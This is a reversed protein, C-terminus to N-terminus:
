ALAQHVYKESKNVSFAKFCSRRLPWACMSRGNRTIMGWGLSGTRELATASEWPLSSLLHDQADQQEMIYPLGQLAVLAHRPACCGSWAAPRPSGSCSVSLSQSLGDGRSYFPLGRNWASTLLWLFLPLGCGETMRFSHHQSVIM